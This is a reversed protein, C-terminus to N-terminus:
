LFVNNESDRSDAFTSRINIANGRQIAISLRQMLFDLSRPEGTHKKMLKGLKKLFISTEPGISGFTEFALPTFNYQSKLDIYNNHKDREAQDAAAGITNSTMHLYSQAVTDVVTVDWILSRGQSWPYSTIGDPRKGDRRSIGYPELKNPFSAAIFAMSFIKNIESHM